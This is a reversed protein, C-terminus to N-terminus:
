FYVGTVSTSIACWPFILVLSQRQNSGTFVWKSSQPMPEAARLLITIVWWMNSSIATSHWLSWILKCEPLCVTYKNYLINTVPIFRLVTFTNLTTSFAERAPQNALLRVINHFRIECYTIVVALIIEADTDVDGADRQLSPKNLRLTFPVDCPLPLMLWGSVVDM